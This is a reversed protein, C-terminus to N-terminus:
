SSSCRSPRRLERSSSVARLSPPQPRSQRRGSAAADEGGNPTAAPEASKGPASISRGAREFEGVEAEISEPPAADAAATATASNEESNLEATMDM